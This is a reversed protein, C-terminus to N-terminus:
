GLSNSLSVFWICLFLFKLFHNVVLSLSCACDYHFVAFSVICCYESSYFFGVFNFDFFLVDM